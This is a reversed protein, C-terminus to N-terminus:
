RSLERLAVPCGRRGWQTPGLDPMGARLCRPWWWCPGQEGPRPRRAARPAAGRCKEPTRCRCGRTGEPRGWYASLGGGPWQRLAAAAEGGGAAAPPAPVTATSPAHAPGWPRREPPAGAGLYKRCRRRCWPRGAVRGRSSAPRPRRPPAAARIQPTGSSGSRVGALPTSKPLLVPGVGSPSTAAASAHARAANSCSSSSSTLGRWVVEPDGPILLVRWSYARAPQSFRGESEQLTNKRLHYHVAYGNQNLSHNRHMRPTQSASGSAIGICRTSCRAAASNSRCLQRLESSSLLLSILSFSLLQM